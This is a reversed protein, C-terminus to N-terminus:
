WKFSIQGFKLPRSKLYDIICYFYQVTIIFHTVFMM